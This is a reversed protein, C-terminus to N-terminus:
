SFVCHLLGEGLQPKMNVLYNSLVKGSIEGGGLENLIKRYSPRRALIQRKRSSEQDESADLVQWCPYFMLIHIAKTFLLIQMLEKVRVADSVCSM